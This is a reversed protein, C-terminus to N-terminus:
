FLGFSIIIETVVDMEYWLIDGKFIVKFVDISCIDQDVNNIWDM